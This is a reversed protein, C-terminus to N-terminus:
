CLVSLSSLWLSLSASGCRAGSHLAVTAALTLLTLCARVAAAALLPAALLPAVPLLLLLPLALEFSSPLASMSSSTLPPSVPAATFLLLVLLLLLLLLPLPLLLLPVLTTALRELLTCTCAASAVPLLLPPLVADTALPRRVTAVLVAVSTVAASADDPLGKANSITTSLGLTFHGDKTYHLSVTSAYYLENNQNHCVM